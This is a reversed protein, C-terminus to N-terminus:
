AASTKPTMPCTTSIPPTVPLLHRESFEGHVHRNCRARKCADLIVDLSEGGALTDLEHHLVHQQRGSRAAAQRQLRHGEDPNGAVGADPIGLRGSRIHAAAGKSGATINIITPLPQSYHNSAMRRSTQLPGAHRHPYSRGNLLFYKDKMDAFGEPNFTM